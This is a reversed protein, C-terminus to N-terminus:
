VNQPTPHQRHKLNSGASTGFPWARGSLMLSAYRVYSCVRCLCDLMGREAITPSRRGLCTYFSTFELRFVLFEFRRGRVEVQRMCHGGGKLNMMNGKTERERPAELACLTVELHLLNAAM